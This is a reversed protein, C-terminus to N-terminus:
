WHLRALGIHHFVLMWSSKRPGISTDGQKELLYSWCHLFIQFCAWRGGVGSWLSARIHQRLSSPAAEHYASKDLSFLLRWLVGYRSPLVVDGSQLDLSFSACFFGSSVRTSPALIGPKGKPFRKFYSRCLASFVSSLLGCSVHRPPRLYRLGWLVATLQNVSKRKIERKIIWTKNNV